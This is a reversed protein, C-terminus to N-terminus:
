AVNRKLKHAYKTNVFQLLISRMCRAKDDKDYFCYHPIEDGYRNTETTKGRYQGHGFFKSFTECIYTDTHNLQIYLRVHLCGGIISIAELTSNWNNGSIFDSSIVLEKDRGYKKISFGTEKVIRKVTESTVSLLESETFRNIAEIKKEPSTRSFIFSNINKVKNIDMTNKDKNTNM